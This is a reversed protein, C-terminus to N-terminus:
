QVFEFFFRKVSPNKHHRTKPMSLSFRNRFLLSVVSHTAKAHPHRKKLTLTKKESVRSSSITEGKEFRLLLTHTRATNHEIVKTEM